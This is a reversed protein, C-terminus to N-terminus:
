GYPLVLHEYKSSFYSVYIIKEKKIAVLRAYGIRKPGTSVARVHITKIIKNTMKQGLSGPIQAPHNEIAIVRLNVSWARM